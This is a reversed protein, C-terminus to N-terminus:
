DARLAVLPDVKTARRAPIWCALLAVIALLGVVAALVLPDTGPLGPILHGLVRVVLTAFVLGACTGIAVLTASHRLVMTLVDSRQAGLALRIGFEQTRQVVLASIVGYLGLAALGLGLVAFAMLLRSAVVLDSQANAIATAVPRLEVVPLDADLEAVARRLPEIM